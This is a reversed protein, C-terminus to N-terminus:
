MQQQFRAANAWVAQNERLASAYKGNPSMAILEKLVGEADAYRGTGQYIVALIYRAEPDAPMEQVGREASATAERWLGANALRVAEKAAPSKTGGIVRRIKLVSPHLSSFIQEAAKNRMKQIM